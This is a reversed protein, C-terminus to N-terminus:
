KSLSSLGSLSLIERKERGERREGRKMTWSISLRSEFNMWDTDLPHGCMRALRLLRRSVPPSNPNRKRSLALM